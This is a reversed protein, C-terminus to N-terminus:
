PWNGVGKDISVLTSGTHRFSDAAEHEWPTLPDLNSPAHVGTGGVRQPIGKHHLEMSVDINRLKGSTKDRVTVSIKPAKGDKMRALNAPSYKSPNAKAEAKWFNKRATSWCELGLPDIFLFPKNWCYEHLNIGTFLSMPDPSVYQGAHPCFYRHRNYSLGTEADAYQGQLRIPNDILAAHLLDVDAWATYSAAWLVEGTSSLLRIPCGNPDNQYWYLSFSGASSDQYEGSHL